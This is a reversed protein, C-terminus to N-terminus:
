DKIEVKRLYYTSQSTRDDENKFSLVFLRNVGQFSLDVLHNLYTNKAYAKISSQYKNWNITRKFGSKLQQLLKENDQTSLTVYFM